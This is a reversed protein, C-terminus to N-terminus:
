FLLALLNAGDVSFKKSYGHFDLYHFSNSFCLRGKSFLVLPLWSLTLFNGFSLQNFREEQIMHLTWRLRLGKSSFLNGNIMFELFSTVGGLFPDRCLYCVMVVGDGNCSLHILLPLM